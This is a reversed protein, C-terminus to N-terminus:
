ARTSCMKAFSEYVDEAMRGYRRGSMRASSSGAPLNGVSASSSGAQQPAPPPEPMPGRHATVDGQWTWGPNAGKMDKQFQQFWGQVSSLRQNISKAAARVSSFYESDDPREELADAPMGSQVVTRRSLLDVDPGGDTTITTTWFLCESTRGRRDGSYQRDCTSGAIKHEPIDPNQTVQYNAVEHRNTKVLEPGGPSVIM